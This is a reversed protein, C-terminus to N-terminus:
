THAVTLIASLLAVNLISMRPIYIYTYIQTYICMFVHVCMDIYIYVVQLSEIKAEAATGIYSGHGEPSGQINVAPWIADGGM